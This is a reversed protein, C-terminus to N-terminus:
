VAVVTVAPPKPAAGVEPSRSCGALGSLLVILAIVALRRGYATDSGRRLPNVRTHHRPPRGPNRRVTGSASVLLLAVRVVPPRRVILLIIRAVCSTPRSAGQSSNSSQRM